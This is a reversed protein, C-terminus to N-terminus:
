DGKVYETKASFCSDEAAFASRHSNMSKKLTTTRETLTGNEYYDIADKMLVNDGGGHFSFDDYLENLDITYAEKAFPSVTIKRTEFNGCIDGESGFIEINRYCEKSFATLQFQAIRGSTMKMNVVMNDFVNNESKYVCKGYDSVHLQRKLNEEDFKGKLFYRSWWEKDKYFDFADFACKDKMPCDSCYQTAGDPSHESRFVYLGGYASIEKITDNMLYTIIDLDHCSKALIIPSSEEKCRWEGRVYSHAFHWYGVHECQRVSVVQGIAGDNLLKKLTRYFHSYRLVHCVLVKRGHAEAYTFIRECDELTSAIPKELLLEMGKEMCKVAVDAHTDDGTAVAAVTANGDKEIYEDISSYTKIREGYCIKAEKLKEEDEDVIAQLKEPCNRYLYDAYIKGRHGFGVIVFKAEM